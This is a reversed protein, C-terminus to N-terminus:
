LHYLHDAGLSSDNEDARSPPRVILHYNQVMTKHHL